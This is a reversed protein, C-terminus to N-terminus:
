NDFLEFKEGWFESDTIQLIASCNGPVAFTFPEENIIRDGALDQTLWTFPQWGSGPVYEEAQAVASVVGAGIVAMVPKGFRKWTM